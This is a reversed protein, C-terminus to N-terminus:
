EDVVLLSVYDKYYIVGKEQDVAASKMEELEDQTFAEGYETMFKTIEDITLHEKHEQDLVELAKMLIDESQPKYKRELIVKMMVPEFKEYKIYGTPEEEEMETIMDNLEGESPCCNLSRIITGIERVDVTKNGEHDFISFADYVRKQIEARLNENETARDREAQSLLAAASTAM